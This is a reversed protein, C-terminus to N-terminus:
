PNGLNFMTNLIEDLTITGFYRPLDFKRLVDAVDERRFPCGRLAAVVEDMSDVSLFDGYFILDAICGKEVAIRAEILGGAWKCKNTMDYKPSRGYVWEWTDYKAIKLKEIEDLEQPSLTDQILGSGALVRKLYDWFAPLTMDKPLLERINGIRSRVSQASKSQFKAPDVNLAQAAMGLNADFLLTGHHLIRNEFLRQATGSCKKGGALIDNRGSAEADVGLEKLASVVPATFRSLAIQDSAGADTIFSYNLNGLDHYVAGGGTVRRIVNIANAEVFARNIEAETNQNQGVVITNDNQWLLLYDGECRHKLIYEEFALNYAPNQSGSELYRTANKKM